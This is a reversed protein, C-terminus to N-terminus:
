LIFEKYYFKLKIDVFALLSDSPDGQVPHGRGAQNRLKWDELETLPRYGSGSCQMVRHYLAHSPLPSVPPLRPLPPPLSLALQPSLSGPPLVLLKPPM